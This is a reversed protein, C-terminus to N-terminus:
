EDDENMMAKCEEPVFAAFGRTLEPHGKFLPKVRKIVGTADLTHTKFDKMIALFQLYAAPQDAYTIEVRALFEVASETKKPAPPDLDLDEMDVALTEPCAM